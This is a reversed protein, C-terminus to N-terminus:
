GCLSISNIPRDSVGQALLTQPFWQWGGADAKTFFWWTNTQTPRYQPNPGGESQCVVWTRGKALRVGGSSYSFQNTCYSKTYTGYGSPDSSTACASGPEGTVLRGPNLGPRAGERPPGDVSPAPKSSSTVTVVTTQGPGPRTPTVTSPVVPQTGAPAPAAASTASPTPALAVPAPEGPRALWWWGGALATAGLVGLMGFLAPAVRHRPRSPPGPYAVPGGDSAPGPHPIPAAPSLVTPFADTLQPPPPMRLRPAAPVGALAPRAARLEAAVATADAPRAAPDKVLLRDLLGWLADPVGPPRGPVEGAHARLVALPSERGAFPPVGCSLEYLLVGLSYLDAAPGPARGEAVEPAMYQPTGLMGTANTSSVLRSIGFDSLRARLGPGADLLVNEPKVDRHVIGVAHAAALGDAIQAGIEAADDPAAPGASRLRSRLDGGDVLDMVIALSRGEVVLDRVQVVHSSVIASLLGRERIFREVIAPDDALAPHLLKVARPIGRGDVGRWVEGAAGRGIIEQLVYSSGLQRAAM